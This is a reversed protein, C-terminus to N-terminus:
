PSVEGVVMLADLAIVGQGVPYLVVPNLDIERLRPEGHLLRGLRAILRTAAKMDLAPSGRFGDFLAASRLLQLESAIEEESLGCPLLRVDKSIEAHIGGFGVLLIPGWAADTRGGIILEVGPRCMREILVGDLALDPRARAVNGLLRDWGDAVEGPTRLNLVVGGADSKHSLLASQAKLAVPFGIEAAVSLTEHKTHALRGSPIPIDLAALLRKCRYEPIVGTQQLAPAFRLPQAESDSGRSVPVSRILAGVARLAREATPLYPTDLSRLEQIFEDPVAAGEDLGAVVVAKNPRLERIARLIPPFKIRATTHGTQILTYLIIGFREEECAAKLVRQYIEPEVLGQATIDLPNSVPVFSPIAARLGPADADSVSPLDLGIQECLDLTLAKFAGSDTIVLAGRDPAYSCRLALELVDGFEELSPALVVGAHRVLTQMLAFDGAMAGTHTAASQRAAASRGPHLLVIRKGLARARGALELFLRPCRFQEVIMGIVRSHPDDLLFALYDEVTSGAENGTSISYSLGLDRQGLNVGVVAAMAGSQSVLGIGPKSLMRAQTEVFTLAVHDVNNVFGLCNPGEIIMGSRQAINALALQDRLGQAGGEAFGASFIVAAGVQRDALAQVAELVASQPIALVAADVGAPLDAVSKLCARVGIRDRKPNILYVDGPFSLRDLNSLVSHGLSGATSSAGVIAISRPRLLREVASRALPLRPANM